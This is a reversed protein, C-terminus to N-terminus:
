EGALRGAFAELDRCRVAEQTLEQLRRTDTLSRIIAFVHEPVPSFRTSLVAILGEKLGEQLGQQRGAQRGEEMASEEVDTLFPMAIEKEYDRMQRRFLLTQPPPLKMMWAILRYSERIEEKTYGSGYLARTLQWRVALRQDPHRSTRLAAIQAKAALAPLSLDSELQPLIDLLKCCPFRFLVECGLREYHYEDPRWDPDLDALITMTVVDEGCAGRIGHFCRFVRRSFDEERFSQVEIHLYLLQTVGDAM